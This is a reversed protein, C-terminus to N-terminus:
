PASVEVVSTLLSNTLNMDSRRYLNETLSSVLRSSQLGPGRQSCRGAGCARVCSGARSQDKSPEQDDGAVAESTQCM